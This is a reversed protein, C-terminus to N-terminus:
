RFCANFDSCYRSVQRDQIFIVIVYTRKLWDFDFFKDGDHMVQLAQKKLSDFRVPGIMRAVEKSENDIVSNYPPFVQRLIFTAHLELGIDDLAQMRHEFVLIFIFVNVM